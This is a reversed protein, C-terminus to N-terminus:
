TQPPAPVVPPTAPRTKRAREAPAAVIAEYHARARLSAAEMDEKLTAFDVSGAGAALIAKLAPPAAEEDFPEEATLKLLSQVNRWLTLIHALDEAADAPLTGARELARLAEMTNVILIEPHAEAHRLLLFQNIFEVDLMGGRRHKVDWFPPERHEDEIRRRMDDVDLALQGQDRARTLIAHIEARTADALRTTGAVIRARTLAMQEWTWAMEEHYRKFAAFSSAVPGSTGSPRLRTDVDYLGGETTPATLANIFRLSLRSYYTLVPVPRPGDSADVSEPADYILILDLDSTVSMERSGLKGLALVVMEGGSIRGNGREFEALVRPLLGAIATEAIDALAAGASEGNLWHRLLQVGIKFKRESVWRRALDLM